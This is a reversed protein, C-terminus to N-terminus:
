PDGIQMTPYDIRLSTHWKGSPDSRGMRNKVPSVHLWFGDQERYLTLVNDPTKALQQEIGSQPIPIIGDNYPGTVHHLVVVAAGLLRTMDQLDLMVQRMVAGADEKATAALNRLNDVVVLAPYEGWKEGYAQCVDAMDRVDLGTRFEIEVNQINDFVHEVFTEDDLSQEVRDATYGTIMQGARVLTTHVPTDMNIYLVPAGCRIAYALMLISKGVGPAAAVLTLEDRRFVIDAQELSRWVM